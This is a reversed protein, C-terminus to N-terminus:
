MKAQQTGAPCVREPEDWSVYSNPIEGIMTITAIDSLYNLPVYLLNKRCLIHRDELVKNIEDDSYRNLTRLTLPNVIEEIKSVLAPIEEFAISFIPKEKLFYIIILAMSQVSKKSCDLEHYAIRQLWSLGPNEDGARIPFYVHGYTVAPDSEALTFTSYGYAKVEIGGMLMELTFVREEDQALQVESAGSEDGVEKLWTAVDVKDDDTPVLNLNIGHIDLGEVRDDQLDRYELLDRKALLQNLWRLAVRVGREGKKNTPSNKYKDEM